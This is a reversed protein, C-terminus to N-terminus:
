LANINIIECKNQLHFMHVAARAVALEVLEGQVQRVHVYLVKGDEPLEGVQLM